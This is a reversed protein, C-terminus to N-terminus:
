KNKMNSILSNSMLYVQFSAKAKTGSLPNMRQNQKTKMTSTQRKASRSQIMPPDVMLFEEYDKDDLKFFQLVKNKM